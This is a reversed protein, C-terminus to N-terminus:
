RRQGQGVRFCVQGPYVTGDAPVEANLVPSPLELDFPAASERSLINGKAAATQYSLQFRVRFIHRAEGTVPNYQVPFFTLRALQRDRRRSVHDLSMVSGPFEVNNSYVDVNRGDQIHKQNGWWVTQFSVSVAPSVPMIDLKGPFLESATDLVDLVVNNGDADSPLLVWVTREPLAPVGPTEMTIGNNVTVTQGSERDVIRADRSELEFILTGACVPVPLLGAGFISVVLIIQYVTRLTINRTM